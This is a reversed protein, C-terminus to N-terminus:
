RTLNQGLVCQQSERQSTCVMVQVNTVNRQLLVPFGVKRRFYTVAFSTSGLAAALYAWSWELATLNDVFVAIIALVGLRVVSIVLRTVAMEGHMELGQFIKAILEVSRLFVLEAAFVLVVIAVPFSSSNLAASAFGVTVTLITATWAITVLGSFFYEPADSKNQAVARLALFDCVLDM